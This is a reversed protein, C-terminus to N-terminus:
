NFVFRHRCIANSRSKLELVQCILCFESEQPQEALSNMSTGLFTISPAARFASSPRGASSTLQRMGILQRVMVLVKNDPLPQGQCNFVMQFYRGGGSLIANFICKIVPIPSTLGRGFLEQRKLKKYSPQALLNFHVVQGFLM